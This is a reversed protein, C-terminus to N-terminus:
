REGAVYTCKRASRRVDKRSSTVPSPLLPAVLGLRFGTEAKNSGERSGLAEEAIYRGRSTAAGLGQRPSPEEDGAGRRACRGPARPAERLTPTRRVFRRLALQRARRMAPLEATATAMRERPRRDPRARRLVRGPRAPRGGRRKRFVSAEGETVVFFGIGSMQGQRVPTTGPLFTRAKFDRSLRKLQRKNLGSLLPVQKSTTPRTAM